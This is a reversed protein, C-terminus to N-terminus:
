ESDHTTADTYRVEVSFALHMEAILREVKGGMRIWDEHSSDRLADRVLEGLKEYTGEYDITHGARSGDRVSGILEFVPVLTQVGMGSGGPYFNNVLGQLLSELEKLTDLFTKVAAQKNRKRWRLGQVKKEIADRYGGLGDIANQLQPRINDEHLYSDIRNWLSSVQEQNRVDCRRSDTLIQQREIGLANVAARAAELYLLVRLELSTSAQAAKKILGAIEKSLELFSKGLSVVETVTAIEM